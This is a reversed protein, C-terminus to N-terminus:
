HRHLGPNHLRLQANGGLRDILYDDVFLELRSGINLVTKQETINESYGKSPDNGPSGYVTYSSSPLWLLMAAFLALQKFQNKM